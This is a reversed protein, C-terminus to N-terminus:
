PRAQELNIKIPRIHRSHRTQTHDFVAFWLYTNNSISVDYPSGTHLARKIELHWYGKEWYGYATIDGRDNPRKSKLLVSPLVTGIPFDDKSTTYPETDDWTLWWNEMDSTNPSISAKNLMKIDDPETPLRRPQTIGESFTEWNMGVGDWTAPPDKQYGATYREYTGDKREALTKPFDTPAHLASGFYSDDAQYYMNSRVSQWHWLDYIKGNNTYHFGRGNLPEPQNKLPTQGLHISKASALADGNALLIAFKDEYFENEDAQAFKTQLIKWGKKTKILPLHKQSRTPDQWKLYLYINNADYLGKIFIKSQGNHLNEGHQTFVSVSNAKQWIPEDSRGDIKIPTPTFAVTLPQANNLIWFIIIAVSCFVVSISSLLFKIRRNPRLIRLLQKVGAQQIHSAIHLIIFLMYGYALTRHLFLNTKSEVDILNFFGTLLSGLVLFILTGYAITHAKHKAVVTSLNKQTLKRKKTSYYFLYSILLGALVVGSLVHWFWVDGQPLTNKIPALVSDIEDSQIRWGTFANVFILITWFSHLFVLTAPSQSINKIKILRREGKFLTFAKKITSLM